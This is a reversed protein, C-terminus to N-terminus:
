LQRRQLVKEQNHPVEVFLHGIKQLLAPADEDKEAADRLSATLAFVRDEVTTNDFSPRATLQKNLNSLLCGDMNIHQAIRKLMDIHNDDNGDFNPAFKRLIAKGKYNM